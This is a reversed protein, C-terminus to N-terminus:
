ITAMAQAAYIDYPNKNDTLIQCETTNFNNYQESTIWDLQTSNISGNLASLIQQESFSRKSALIMLNQADLPNWPDVRFIYEYPFVSGFTKYLSKVVCSGQGDLPSIVNILVSGNNSLHSYIEEATEKTTLQYPMSISTGYTDLVVANYITKNTQLFYRADENYIKIRSSNVLGFFEKAVKIVEPDIEVVYINANSHEYMYMPMEGAGLGLYLIKKPPGFADLLNQYGYYETFDSVNNVKNLSQITVYDTQMALGGSFNVVMLHYYLTDTQYLVHTGFNFIQPKPITLVTFALVSAILVRKSLTTAGIFVLIACMAFLSESIGFYPILMYGTFLAGFISGVTSIAYLNGATKGVFELNSSKLRVAYPAVMGLAVNPITLLILSAFLPGYEFGIVLGMELVSQSFFPIIGIFLAACFLLSSLIRVDSTKESLWGGLFYGVGLSALVVSISSTWTFITDGYYPSLIRAGTIEIVMVALGTFFVIAELRGM